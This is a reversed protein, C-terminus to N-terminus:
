GAISSFLIVASLIVTAFGIMWILVNYKSNQADMKAEQSERLSDMRAEQSERLSNMRAEQSERQSKLEARLGELGADLKSIFQAITNQSAINSMREALEVAKRDKLGADQLLEVIRTFEPTEGNRNQVLNLNLQEEAATSGVAWLWCGAGSRIFFVWIAYIWSLFKILAKYSRDIIWVSRERTNM